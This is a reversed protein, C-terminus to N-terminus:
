SFFSACVWFISAYLYALNRNPDFIYISYTTYLAVDSLLYLGFASAHLLLIKINIRVEAQKDKFYSHIRYVGLVLLIGSIIQFVGVLDPIIYACYTIFTGPDGNKIYFQNNLPILVFAELMPFILNCVLFIKFTTRECKKNTIRLRQIAKPINRAIKLYEFAMVLHVVSFPTDQVSYAIGLM